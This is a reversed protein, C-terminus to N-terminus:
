RESQDGQILQNWISWDVADLDFTPDFESQKSMDFAYEGLLIHQDGTSADAANDMFATATSASTEGSQAADSGARNRLNKVLELEEGLPSNDWARLVLRRVAVHLARKSEVMEGPHNAFLKEVRGWAQSREEGDLKGDSLLQLNLILSEWSGWVFLGRIHWQFRKLAAHEVAASDTDVIKQTLRLTERMQDVNSTGEHRAVFIGLRMAAIGSRTSCITLFHLPDVLDCYRLYKEEVEEEAKRIINEVGEKQGQTKKSAGFARGLTARALCFMMETAENREDPVDEMGPWIDGDNVNWPAETDWTEPLVAIGTGAMQGAWMDLPLLQYWLRRRM